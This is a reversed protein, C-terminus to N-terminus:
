DNDEGRLLKYVLQQKDVSTAISLMLKALDDLTLIVFEGRRNAKKCVLLNIRDVGPYLRKSDDILKDFWSLFGLSQRYKADIFFLPHEVDLASVSFNQGRTIRKGGLKKAVTRELDKWAQSQKM